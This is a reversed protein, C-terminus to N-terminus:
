EKLQRPVVGTQVDSFYESMEYTPSRRYNDNTCSDLRRHSGYIRILNTNTHLFINAILNASLNKRRVTCAWDPVNFM